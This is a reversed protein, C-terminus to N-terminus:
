YSGGDVEIADFTVGSLTAGSINGGTIAVNSATQVAMTGLGLATRAGSATTAGTGGYALGIATGQWVGSAITGVSTLSSSVVGAGLASASLVSTGNIYFAKGSALDIHETCSCINLTREATLPEFGLFEQQFPHFGKTFPM